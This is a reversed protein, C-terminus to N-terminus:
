NVYEVALAQPCGQLQIFVGTSVTAVLAALLAQRRSVNVREETANPVSQWNSILIDVVLGLCEM